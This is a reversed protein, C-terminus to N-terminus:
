VLKQFHLYHYLLLDKVEAQKSALSEVQHGLEEKAQTIEIMRQKMEEEVRVGVELDDSLRANRDNLDNVVNNICTLEAKNKELEQTLTVNEQELVTMKNTMEATVNELQQYINTNEQKLIDINKEFELKEKNYKETLSAKEQESITFKQEMEEKERKEQDLDAQLSDIKEELQPIIIQQGM